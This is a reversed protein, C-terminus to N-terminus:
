WGWARAPPPIRREPRGRHTLFRAFANNTASAPGVVDGDDSAGFILGDATPNVKVRMDNAYVLCPRNKFKAYLEGVINIAIQNHETTAGSMAFIEGDFYESKYEAGREM